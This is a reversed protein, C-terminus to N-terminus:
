NELSYWKYHYKCIIYLTSTDSLNTVSSVIIYISFMISFDSSFVWSWISFRYSQVLYGHWPQPEAVVRSKESAWFDQAGRRPAGCSLLLNPEVVSERKIRALTGGLSFLHRLLSSFFHLVKQCLNLVIQSCALIANIADCLAQHHNTIRSKVYLIFRDNLRIQRQATLCRSSTGLIELLRPNHRLWFRPM